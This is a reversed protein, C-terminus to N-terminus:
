LPQKLERPQLDVGYDPHQIRESSPAYEQHVEERFPTQHLLEFFRGVPTKGRLAGHAREWNCHHQWEALQMELDGASLNLTEYFEAVDTKQSREVKGNLDSARTNEEWHRM